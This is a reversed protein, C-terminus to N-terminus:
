AKGKNAPTVPVQPIVSPKQGTIREFRQAFEEPTEWVERGPTIAMPNLKMGAPESFGQAILRSAVSPTFGAVDGKNYCGMPGRDSKLFKVLVTDPSVGQKAQPM